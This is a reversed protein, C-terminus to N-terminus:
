FPAAAPDLPPFSGADRLVRDGLPASLRVVVRSPPNGPCEFADGELPVAAFVILVSDERELVTPALLRAGMEQGGTCALENVLIALDTTTADPAPADPDLTWSAPSLGELDIRPRCQGWGALQWRGDQLHVTVDAFPPDNGPLHAIFAASADDRSVLRYGSAPMWEFEPPPAAIADRLVAASPHADLEATAPDDLIDLSFSPGDGCQYRLNAPVAVGGTPASPVPDNSGVPTAAPDATGSPGPSGPDPSPLAPSCALVLLTLLALLPLPITRM